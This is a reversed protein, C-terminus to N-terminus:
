PVLSIKCFNLARLRKLSQDKKKHDQHIQLKKAFQWFKAFSGYCVISVKFNTHETVIMEDALQILVESYIYTLM